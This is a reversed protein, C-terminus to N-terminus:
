CYQSIGESIIKLKDHRLKSRYTNVFNMMWKIVFYNDGKIFILLEKKSCHRFLEKLIVIFQFQVAFHKHQLDRLIEILIFMELKDWKVKLKCILNSMVYLTTITRTSVEDMDTFYKLLAFEFFKSKVVLDTFIDTRSILANICEVIMENSSYQFTWKISIPLSISLMEKM